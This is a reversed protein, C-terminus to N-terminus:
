ARAIGLARLLPVPDPAGLAAGIAAVGHAGAQLCRPAGEADVGGLAFLRVGRGAADLKARVTTLSGLGLAPHAKRPALIPSLLVVDADVSAAAAPEHCARIQPMRDVIKRADASTVSWEGLHLADAGLAHAIDLRDNVVIRQGHRRATDRLRAGVALLARGGLSRDRLDLAVTGPRASGAMRAWRELTENVGVSQFDTIALLTVDRFAELTM